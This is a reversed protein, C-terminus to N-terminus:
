SKEYSQVMDESEKLEKVIQESNSILNLFLFKMTKYNSHKKHFHRTEKGNEVFIITIAYGFRNEFPARLKLKNFVLRINEKTNLSKYYVAWYVGKDCCSKQIEIKKM